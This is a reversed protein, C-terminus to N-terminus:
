CKSKVRENIEDIISKNDKSAPYTEGSVPLAISSEDIQMSTELDIKAFGLPNFDRDTFIDVEWFSGEKDTYPVKFRVKCMEEGVLRSFANYVDSDITYTTEKFSPIDDNTKPLFEKITQTFVTEGGEKDLESRVRISGNPVKFQAQRQYIPTFGNQTFSAIVEASDKDLKVYWCYEREIEQLAEMAFMFDIRSM